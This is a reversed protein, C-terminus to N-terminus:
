NLLYPAAYPYLLAATVLLTASWLSSKVVVTSKPTECYSGPVCAKKPKLYVTYFGGALFIVTLTVFYPKYPTLATLNSIWAGSIGLLFLVLPVICCSSALVAGVVSGTALLSHQRTNVEPPISTNNDSSGGAIQAQTSSQEM